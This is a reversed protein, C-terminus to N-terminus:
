LKSALFSLVLCSLFLDKKKKSSPAWSEAAASQGRLCRAGLTRGPGETM